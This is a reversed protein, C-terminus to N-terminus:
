AAEMRKAPLAEPSRAHWDRRKRVILRSAQKSSADWFRDAFLGLESLLTGVPIIHCSEHHSPASREVM